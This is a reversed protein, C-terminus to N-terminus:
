RLGLFSLIFLVIVILGVLYIIGDMVLRRSVYKRAAPPPVAFSYDGVYRNRDESTGTSTALM